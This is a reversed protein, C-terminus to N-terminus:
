ENCGCSKRIVLSPNLVIRMPKQKDNSIRQLLLETSIKGIDYSPQHITTLPIELWSCLDIDDYGIVGVDKGVALGMKKLAILAGVATTDNYTFIADPSVRSFLKRCGAEGGQITQETPEIMKENFALGKEKLAKKYGELRDASTISKTYSPALYAVNKFGHELLHNTALYGGLVNDNYVCNAISRQYFRNMLVMPIGAKKLELITGSDEMQTPTMLVGDVQREICLAVYQAEKEYSRRTNMLIVNYGAQEATEEVGHIVGAFFHNEIESVLLALINTKRTKLARAVANPRYHYKDIISQIRKRTEDSVGEQHNLVRTVSRKTVGALEAIQNINM